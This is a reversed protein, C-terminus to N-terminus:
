EIWEWLRYTDFLMFSERKVIDDYTYTKLTFGLSIYDTELEADQKIKETKLVILPTGTPDNELRMSEIIIFASYILAIVVIVKLLHKM